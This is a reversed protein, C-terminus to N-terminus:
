SANLIFGLNTIRQAMTIGWVNILTLFAKIISSPNLNFSSTIKQNETRAL